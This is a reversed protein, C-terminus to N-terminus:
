CLLFFFFFFMGKSQGSPLAVENDLDLHISNVWKHKQAGSSSPISPLSPLPCHSDSDSPSEHALSGGGSKTEQHSHLELTTANEADCLRASPITVRKPHSNINDSTTATNM